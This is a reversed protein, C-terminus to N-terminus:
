ENPGTLETSLMLLKLACHTLKSLGSLPLFSAAGSLLMM